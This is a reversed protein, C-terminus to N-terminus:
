TKKAQFHGSLRDLFGPPGQNRQRRKVGGSDAEGADQDYSFVPVPLSPVPLSPVPLSPVPLSPAPPLPSISSSTPLAAAGGKPLIRFEIVVSNATNWILIRLIIPRWSGSRYLKYPHLDSDCELDLGSRKEMLLCFFLFFVKIRFNIHSRLVTVNKNNKNSNHFGRLFPASDLDQDTGFTVPGSCKMIFLDGSDPWCLLTESGSEPGGNKASDRDPDLGNGPNQHGFFLFFNCSFIKKYIKKILLQM